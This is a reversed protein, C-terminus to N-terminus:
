RRPAPLPGFDRNCHQGRLRRARTAASSSAAYPATASTTLLNRLEYPDKHHDYLFGDTPGNNIRRGYAYRQTLVGRYAWGPFRVSPDKAGTQILM